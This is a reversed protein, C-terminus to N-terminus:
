AVLRLRPPEGPGDERAARWVEDFPRPGFRRLDDIAFAYHRDLMQLSTGCEKAVTQADEARLRVSIGGRRLSYPTAGAIACLEPREAVKAVAPKLFKVGWKKCQNLSLHVAGTRKDVVGWRDGGLDGPIIFDIDRAPHGWARLAARWAVLDEWLIGPVACRRETSHKTKGYEDLEGWSIVEVIDAFTESVSGWRIGWVEQNRASLGYQLSVVMADRHALIRDRQHVRKLLEARIAEVAQPSLAWAPTQSSRKRGASGKGTGGSRASRRRTHIRESALLCGNTRIEPVEHTSAAWSLIASLVKWAEACRAQSHGAARMQGLWHRPLEPDNFRVGPQRALEVAFQARGIVERSCNKIPKGLLYCNAATSYSAFTSRALGGELTPDADLAFYMEVIEAFLRGDVQNAEQADLDLLFRRLSDAGRREAASYDSMWERAGGVGGASGFTKCREVREHDFYGVVYSKRGRVGIRPWPTKKWPRM